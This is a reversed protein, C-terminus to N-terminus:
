KSTTIEVSEIWAVESPAEAAPDAPNEPQPEVVPIKGIQRLVKLGKADTRGFVTYQPPLKFKDNYVFFFQSGGTDQGANAMAVTGPPYGDGKAAKLEDELKYGVDWSADNTGSGTQLAGISTANRFIALGNFFGDASLFAFSNVTKPADDELLDITVTGCSTTVVAQYDAGKDLVQEPRKFTPKDEGASAPVQGGCAVPREALPDVATTPAASPTESPNAAVDEAPAQVSVYIIGAGIAVLIAVVIGTFITTQRQKRRAAARAAEKQRKLERKHQKGSM